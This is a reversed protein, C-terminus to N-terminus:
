QLSKEWRKLVPCDYIEPKLKIYTLKTKEEVWRELEKNQKFQLAAEQIKQYDDHLNAVHPRSKSKVKLIRYANKNDQDQYVLPISTSGVKMTDVQFFLSKDMKDPAFANGGTEPNIMLGNNFKSEEDDSFKLAAEEFTIENTLIKNRISDLQLVAAIMDEDGVKPAILIHRVNIQEGKRDILQMIHFGFKTEIIDSVEGAKLNYAAAEFEPVMQGRTFYGLEGGKRASGPDESYLAAFISFDEGNMVRTRYEALQDKVRQKEYANVPPRKVIQEITIEADIYPLSDKDIRDFYQRVDQPTVQIDKTIKGQMTQVILQEKIVQRLEEKLQPITTHFYAELKEESGIQSVFFRMRKDLEAEVQNDQVYVSDVSAQNVLLKQFILNDVVECKMNIAEPNQVVMQNYQKEIDSSLIINSGVIAVVQDIVKTTQAQSTAASLIVWFALFLQKM